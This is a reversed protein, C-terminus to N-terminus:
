FPVPTEDNQKQPELQDNLKKIRRQYLQCQKILSANEHQFQDRSITLAKIEIQANKLETRLEAIIREVEAKEEATGEAFGIAIQTKLQENEKVLDALVDPLPDYDEFEGEQPPYTDVKSSM